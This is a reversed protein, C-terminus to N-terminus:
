AKCSGSFLCILGLSRSPFFSPASGHMVSSAVTEHSCPSLSTVPSFQTKAEPLAEENHKIQVQQLWVEMQLLVFLSLLTAIPYPHHKFNSTLGM